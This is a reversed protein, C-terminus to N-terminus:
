MEHARQPKPSVKGHEQIYAPATAFILAPPAVGKCIAASIPLVSIIVQKNFAPASGSKQSSTLNNM